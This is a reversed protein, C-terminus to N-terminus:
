NLEILLNDEREITTQKLLMNKKTNLLPIEQWTLLAEKITPSDSYDETVFRM